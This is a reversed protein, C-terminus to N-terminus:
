KPKNYTGMFSGKIETPSNTAGSISGSLFEGESVITKTGYPIQVTYQTSGEAAAFVDFEPGGVPIAASFELTLSKAGASFGAFGQVTEIPQKKSDFSITADKLRVQSVGDIIVIIAGLFRKNEAM